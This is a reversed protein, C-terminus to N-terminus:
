WQVWAGGASRRWDGVLRWGVRSAGCDAQGVVPRGAVLSGGRAPSRASARQRGQRPPYFTEETVAVARGGALVVVWRRVGVDGPRCGFLEAQVAGARVPRWRVRRLEVPLMVLRLVQSLTLDAGRLYAEVEAPVREVVLWLRSHALVRRRRAPTLAVVHVTRTLVRDDGGVALLRAPGAPVERGALLSAAVVPRAVVPGGVMRALQWTASGCDRLVRLDVPLGSAADAPEPLQRADILAM